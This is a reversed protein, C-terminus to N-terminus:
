KGPDSGEAKKTPEPSAAKAAEKKEPILGLKVAEDRNKEDQLFTVLEVPSNRFRARVQPPLANFSEQAADMRRRMEAFDGFQSVDAFSGQMYSVDLPPVGKPFYRNVIANIDCDKAFEQKAGEEGTHVKCAEKPTIKKKPDKYLKANMMGM